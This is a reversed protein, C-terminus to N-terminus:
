EKKSRPSKTVYAKFFFNIFLLFYSGYMLGTLLADFVSWDCPEGASFRLHAVTAIFLGAAMQVIQLATIVMSLGKPLRFGAARVAYYSYMVSHITLNMAGYYRAPAVLYALGYWSYICTLVHHYWHLFILPRKRLVIFSTDGFEVLKSFIYLASWLGTVPRTYHQECVSRQFGLHRVTHLLTPVYRLAGVISFLAMGLNWLVLPLRLRFPERARMLRRGGFVLLVYAASVPFCWAWITKFWQLFSVADFRAEFETLPFPFSVDSENHSAM